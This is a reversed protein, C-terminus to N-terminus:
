GIAKKKTTQRAPKAQCQEDPWGLAKKVFNGGKCADVCDQYSQGYTVVHTVKEKKDWAVIIVQSLDYKKSINKAEQIAIRKSM